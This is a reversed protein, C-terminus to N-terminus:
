CAAPALEVRRVLVGIRVLRGKGHWSHHKCAARLSLSTVKCPAKAYICITMAAEKDSDRYCALSAIHVTITQEQM